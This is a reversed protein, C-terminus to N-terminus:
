NLQLRMVQFLQRLHDPLNGFMKREWAVLNMLGYLQTAEDYPLSKYFDAPPEHKLLEAAHIKAAELKSNQM